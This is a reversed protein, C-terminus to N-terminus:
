NPCSGSELERQVLVTADHEGSKNAVIGIQAAWTGLIHEGMRGLDRTM